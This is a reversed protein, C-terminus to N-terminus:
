SYILNSLTSKEKKTAKYILAINGITHVLEATTQHCLEDILLQKATRDGVALKVKILEHDHLARLAENVVGSTLGRDAVTLVPKLKHGITRFQKNKSASLNM